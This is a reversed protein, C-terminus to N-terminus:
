NLSMTGFVLNAAIANAIEAMYEGDTGCCGGFVTLGYRNKLNLIDKALEAPSSTHKLIDANDLLDYRLAATNAQIGKFRQHVLPVDNFTRGLAADVFTPHICNTMYFLPAKDVANDISGIADVIPTNDVLCGDSNITFSIIYPLGSDSMAKAMGKAEPLTPMIGAMLFDVESDKFLDVQWKHFSYAEMESLSDQGTYADGYSGMLGGIYYPSTFNSLVSKLFSVNDNIIRESYGGNLVREKNARRTPTTALFPLGAATAINMYETWLSQLAKRGEETYLLPAMAAIGSIDLNFERKLREGLAGEMLFLDQNKFKDILCEKM